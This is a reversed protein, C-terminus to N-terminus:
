RFPPYYRLKNSINTQNFTCSFFLFGSFWTGLRLIKESKSLAYMDFLTEKFFEFLEDDTLDYRRTYWNEPFDYNNFFINSYKLESIFKKFNNDSSCIFIPKEKNEDLFSMIMNEYSKLSTEKNDIEFWRYHISYFNEPFTTIKEECFKIIDKNLLNYKPLHDVDQWYYLGDLGYDTNIKEDVYVKYIRSNDYILEYNKPLHTDNFEHLIIELNDFVSFDFIKKFIERDHSNMKYPNLGINVYTKVSYGIKKLIEQTLYVRYMAGYSDGLGSNMGFSIIANM